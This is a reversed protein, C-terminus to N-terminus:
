KGNNWQSSKQELHRLTTELESVTKIQTQMEERTAENDEEADAINSRAKEIDKRWGEIRRENKSIDDRMDEAEGKAEELNERLVVLKETYYKHYFYQEFEELVRKAASFAESYNDNSAYVDYGFGIGLVVTTKNDDTTKIKSYVDMQKDSIATVEVNKALYIERDRNRDERDVDVDHKKDWYQDWLDIVKDPSANVDLEHAMM